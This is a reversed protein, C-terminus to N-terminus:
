NLLDFLKQLDDRLYLVSEYRDSKETALARLLITDLEAPVDAINSPPTPEETLIKNIVTATSGEFPLQNTFLEYFLAGLQYIDTIDDATGRTEDFQEPASYYQSLEGINNSNRMRHKSVGWDAVKPVDWGNDSSRFLVNTPKLNGHSVGHRHAYHVAETIVSATWVAQNLELRGAREGLHGADMYEMGIWPVPSSDFDVVGVVHDHSDLHSWEQFGKLLRKIQDSQVTEDYLLIKVAIPINETDYLMHERYVYTNETKGIQENQHFNKYDLEFSPTQPINRPPTQIPTSDSSRTNVSHSPETSSSGSSGNDDSNSLIRSSVSYAGFLTLLGAIGGGITLVTKTDIGGDEIRINEPTEGAISHHHGLAGQAVRSGESSGAVGADLAYINGNSSGVFVIGDVVIPSSTIEGETEFAWRQSGDDRDLAYITNDAGGIFVTDEVVTPSSEITAETLFRWQIDGTSADLAYVGGNHDEKTVGVFITEDDVTPTSYIEWGLETRWRLRGTETDVASLSFDWSGIFVTGNAVTPSGTIPRQTLLNWLLNGSAADIAYLNGDHSGVFVTGDVVIPSSDIRGDAQYRWEETGTSRNLRYLVGDGSGVYVGDNDVSPSSKIFSDFNVSWRTKGTSVDLAVVGGENSRRWYGVYVTSDVVRASPQFFTASNTLFESHEALFGTEFRWQETGSQADIAYFRGDHSGVFVIGGVVSPSGTVMRETEFEWIKRSNQQLSRKVRYNINNQGPGKYILIDNTASIPIGTTLFRRRSLPIDKM